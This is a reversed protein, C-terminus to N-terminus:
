CKQVLKESMRSFFRGVGVRSEATALLRDEGEVKMGLGLVLASTIPLLLEEERGRQFRHLEIHTVSSSEYSWHSMHSEMYIMMHTLSVIGRMQTQPITKSAM